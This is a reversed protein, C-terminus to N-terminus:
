VRSFDSARDEARFSWFLIGRYGERRAKDVYEAPSMRSRATPAEGVLCPRDLGHIGARFAALRLRWAPLYWHCQYLDLGLGRWYTLWQPRASGLTVPQATRGHFLAVCEHVFARMAALDVADRRRPWARLIKLVWEPENVLDWAFIESMKGYRDLMPALALELFSARRGPETIVDSHGGLSVGDVMSRPYCWRFDLLVPMILLDAERAAQLLSDFDQFFYDDFGAVEGSRGFEPSARGDAFIFIRVVPKGATALRDRIQDFDRRLEDAAGALGRYGWASAGFDQGYHRWPYNVGIVFSDNKVPENM